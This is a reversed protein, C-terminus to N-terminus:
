GRFTWFISGAVSDVVVFSSRREELGYALLCSGCFFLAVERSNLVRTYVGKTARETGDAADDTCAAYSAHALITSAQGVRTSWRTGHPREVAVIDEGFVVGRV